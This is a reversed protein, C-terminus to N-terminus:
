TKRYVYKIIEDSREKIPMGSISGEVNELEKDSSKLGKRDKTLNSIVFGTIFKYKDSNETPYGRLYLRQALIVYGMILQWLRTKRCGSYEQNLMERANREPLAESKRLDLDWILFFM